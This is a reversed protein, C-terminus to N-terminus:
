ASAGPSPELEPREPKTTATLNARRLVFTHPSPEPRPQRAEPAPSQQQHVLWKAAYDSTLAKVFRSMEQELARLILAWDRPGLEDAAHAIRKATLHSTQRHIRAVLSDPVFDKNIQYSAVTFMRPDFDCAPRDKYFEILNRAHLLFAEVLANHEAAPKSARALDYTARLMSIEYPLHENFFEEKLHPAPKKNTTM